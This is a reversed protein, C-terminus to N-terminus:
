LGAPSSPSCRPPTPGGPRTGEMDYYIPNGPSIGIRKAQTVADGAAALGESHAQATNLSLTRSGCGSGAAQLGVYLPVPHWRSTIEHDIWARTLNPQACAM